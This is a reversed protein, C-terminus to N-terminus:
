RVPLIRDRAATTDKEVRELENPNRVIADRASPPCTMEASEQFRYLETCNEISQLPREAREQACGSLVFAFATSPPIYIFHKWTTVTRWLKGAV